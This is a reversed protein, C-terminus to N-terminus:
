SAASISPWSEVAEASRSEPMVDDPILWARLNNRMADKLWNTPFALLVGLAVAALLM